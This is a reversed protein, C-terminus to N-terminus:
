HVETQLKRHVAKYVQEKIHTRASYKHENQPYKNSCTSASLIAEVEGAIWIFCRKKLTGHTGKFNCKVGM